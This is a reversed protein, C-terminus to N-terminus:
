NGNNTFLSLDIANAMAQYGADNPHLHDGSDYAALIRAPHSPDRTAVDFDIVADYAGSNRIWANVAQRKAEGAISFYGPFATGEFPTLTGGIIKLGLAHARGVIQHHGEIIQAASVGESALGFAGPIGIDNIGELVIVYRAGSQVLVDRDLRALANTGIFDHLVRNGSIGEDVVAVGSGDPTDHLRKALRNPWRRNTDPTSAYGDTISDGLTVIAFSKKSARVEVGALFYWSQTTASAALTTAGTFDGPASIYTTQLGLSHETAAAVSDPLYISVALDGLAPVDLDVPDSLQLAGPPIVVTPSGNFTLVRDSGAQISAGTMSIAVHASGITLSNTGYANTFRVRASSGGISTHVIERLTQGSLPLPAGAAQPSAGWTGVWHEDGSLASANAPSGLTLGATAVLAVLLTRLQKALPNRTGIVSFETTSSGSPPIFRHASM